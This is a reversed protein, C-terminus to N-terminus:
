PMPLRVCHSGLIKTEAARKVRARPPTESAGGVALRSHASGPRPLYRAGDRRYAFALGARRTWRIKEANADGAVRADAALSLASAQASKRRPPLVGRAVRRQADVLAAEDPLHRSTNIGMEKGAADQPPWCSPEDARKRAFAAVLAVFSAFAGSANLEDELRPALTAPDGLSDLALGAAQARTQV